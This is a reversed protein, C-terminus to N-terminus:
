REIPELNPPVWTRRAEDSMLRDRSFFQLLYDKSGCEALLAEALRALPQDRARGELFRVIVAVWALTITEHYGTPNGVSLNYRRIGRRIRDAAEARPHRRLYHLAVILHERHTWEARPLTCDEFSRVLAEIEDDTKM